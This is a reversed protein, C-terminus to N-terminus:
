INTIINLKVTNKLSFQCKCVNNKFAFTSINSVSSNLFFDSVKIVFLHWRDNNSMTSIFLIFLHLASREICFLHNEYWNIIFFDLFDIIVMNQQNIGFFLMKLFHVKMKFRSENEFSQTVFLMITKMPLLNYKYYLCGTLNYWM